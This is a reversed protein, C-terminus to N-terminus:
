RHRWNHHGIIAMLIGIGTIVAIIATTIGAYQWSAKWTEVNMSIIGLIFLGLLAIGFGIFGWRMEDNTISQIKFSKGQSSWLKRHQLISNM